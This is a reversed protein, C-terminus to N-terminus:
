SDLAVTAPDLWGGARIGRRVTIGAQGTRQVREGLFASHLLWSEVWVDAARRDAEVGGLHYEWDHQRCCPRFPKDPVGTCGDDKFEDPAPEAM